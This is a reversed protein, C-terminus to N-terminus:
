TFIMFVTELTVWVFDFIASRAIYKVTELKVFVITWTKQMFNPGIISVKMALTM